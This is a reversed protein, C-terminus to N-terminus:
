QVEGPAPEPRLVRLRREGWETDQPPPTLRQETCFWLFQHIYSNLTPYPGRTRYKGYNRRKL